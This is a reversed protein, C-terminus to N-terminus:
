NGNSTITQKLVMEGREGWSLPGEQLFSPCETERKGGGAATRLAQEM